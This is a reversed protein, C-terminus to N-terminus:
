LLATLSKKLKAEEKASWKMVRLDVDGDLFVIVKLQPQVDFRELWQLTFPAARKGFLSKEVAFTVTDEGVKAVSAIVVADGNAVIERVPYRDLAYKAFSSVPETMPMCGELAEATAADRALKRLGAAGQPSRVKGFGVAAAMRAVPNASQALKQLRPTAERGLVFIRSLAPWTAGPTGAAGVAQGEYTKMSEIQAVARDAEAAHDVAVDGWTATTLLLVVLFSRM